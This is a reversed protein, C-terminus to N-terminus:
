AEGRRARITETWRREWEVLAAGAAELDGARLAEEMREEPEDLVREEAETLSERVGRPYVAGLRAYADCIRQLFDAPTEAPNEPPGPSASLSPRARPVEGAPTRTEQLSERSRRQLRRLAERTKTM